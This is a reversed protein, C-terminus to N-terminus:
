FTVGVALFIQDKFAKLRIMEVESNLGPIPPPPVYRHLWINEEHEFGCKYYFSSLKATEALRIELSLIPGGKKETFSGDFTEIKWGGNLEHGAAFNVFVGMKEKIKFAKVEAMVQLPIVYILPQGGPNYERYHVEFGTRIGAALLPSLLKKIGARLRASPYKYKEHYLYSIAFPNVSSEWLRMKEKGVSISSGVEVDMTLRGVLQANSEELTFLLILILIFSCRMFNSNVFKSGKLGIFTIVEM